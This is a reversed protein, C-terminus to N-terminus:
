LSGKSGLAQVGWINGGARNEPGSRCLKHEVPDLVLSVLDCVRSLRRLVPFVWGVQLEILGSSVFHFYSNNNLPLEVGRSM